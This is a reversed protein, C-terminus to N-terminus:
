PLKTEPIEIRSPYEASVWRGKTRVPYIMWWRGGTCCRPRISRWSWQWREWAPSEGDALARADVREGFMQYPRLRIWTIEIYTKGSDHFFVIFEIPKSGVSMTPRYLGRREAAEKVDEGKEPKGVHLSGPATVKVTHVVATGVAYVSFTARKRRYVKKGTEPHAEDTGHDSSVHINWGHQPRDFWEWRAVVISALAAALAAVLTWLEM